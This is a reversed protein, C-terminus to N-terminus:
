EDYDLIPFAGVFPNEIPSGDDIQKAAATLGLREASLRGASALLTYASIVLDHRAVLLNLQANVLDQEADILDLISKQGFEVEQATGDRVAIAADLEALHASIVANATQYARYANEANLRTTRRDDSLDHLSKQHDAVVGRSKARVSPSPYLPMSFEVRASGVEQDGRDSTADTTRGTFTLNVNPRIQALLANITRRAIREQLHIIQHSPKHSLALDAAETATSPLDLLLDAVDMKAMDMKAPPKGILSVYSADATALNNEAQILTAKARAHRAKTASLETVTGEGIELKLTAARLHEDLRALNAESLSLRNRASSLTTYTRVAELLVNEEVAGRQMKALDLRLRALAEQESSVGGDYLKKKIEVTLNRSDNRSFDDGKIAQEEWKNDLSLTSSWESPARAIVLEEIASSYAKQASMIKESKLLARELEIQLVDARGVHCTLMVSGWAMLAIMLHFRVSYVM